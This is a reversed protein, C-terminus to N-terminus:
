AARRESLVMMGALLWGVIMALFYVLDRLEIVGRELSEFHATLSFQELVRVFGEPLFTGFWGLTSPMGLYVLVVCTGAALVFSIVQNRTLSSFFCGIALFAGATLLSAGYGCWLPGPDPDGLYAVTLPFPATLTLAIALFALAATFKAMAAQRITIPLTLLLEISGSRREESWLRMAVSPVLFCFLWPIYRFFTGLAANRSAYFDGLEFPLYAALFLFVVLFVYAVPTTFYGKLERKFVAWFGKM